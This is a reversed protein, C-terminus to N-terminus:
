SACLLRPTGVGLDGNPGEKVVLGEVRLRDAGRVDLVLREAQGPQYTGGAVQTGDLSVRAGVQSDGANGDLAGLTM